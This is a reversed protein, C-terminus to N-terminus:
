ILENSKGGPNKRVKRTVYWGAAILIAGGLGLGVGVGLAVSSNGSKNSTKGHHVPKSSHHSGSHHSDSHRSSSHFGDSQHSPSHHSHSFSNSAGGSGLACVPAPTSMSGLTCLFTLSGATLVYGSACTMTCTFNNPVPPGVCTGPLMHPGPIPLPCSGTPGNGPLTSPHANATPNRSYYIQRMTGTTGTVWMAHLSSGQTTIFPLMAYGNTVPATALTNPPTPSYTQGWDTSNMYYNHTGPDKFAVHVNSGDIAITPYFTISFQSIQTPAVSPISAGGDISPYVVIYESGSSTNLHWANAVVVVSGSATVTPSYGVRPSKQLPFQMSWTAGNNKSYMYFLELDCTDCGEQRNDNWAIYVADHSASMAPDESRGVAYTLRTINGWTEGNDNSITIFLETDDAPVDTVVTNLNVYVWNGSCALGPWFTFDKVILVEADWTLGGDPSRIYYSDSTPSAIAAQTYYPNRWFVVHVYGNCTAIYPDVDQAWDPSLQRPASWSSGNTTSRAYFIYSVQGPPSVNASYPNSINGSSWVAHLVVGDSSICQGMNEPLLSSWQANIAANSLQQPASWQGAAFGMLTLWLCLYSM